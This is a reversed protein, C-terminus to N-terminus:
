QATVALTRTFSELLDNESMGFETLIEDLKGGSRLDQITGLGVTSAMM